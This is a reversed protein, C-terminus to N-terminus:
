SKKLIHLNILIKKKLKKFITENGFDEIEIFNKKYNEKYLQPALVKNKNLIRNIADYVVLNKFKEKKAFVVISSYNKNKKRFFKRYSADGKLKKLNKM